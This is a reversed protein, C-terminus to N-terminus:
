TNALMEAYFFMQLKTEPILDRGITLADKSLELEQRVNALCILLM